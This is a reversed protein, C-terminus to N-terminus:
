GGLGGIASTLTPICFPTKLTGSSITEYYAETSFTATIFFEALQSLATYYVNRLFVNASTWLRLNDQMILNTKM